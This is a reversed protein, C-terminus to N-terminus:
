TEESFSYISSVCNKTVLLFYNHRFHINKTVIIEDGFTYM